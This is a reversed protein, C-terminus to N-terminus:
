IMDKLEMMQIIASVIVDDGLTPYNFIVDYLTNDTKKGAFFQNIQDRQADIHLIKKKAEALSIMQRNSVDNIRWELPAQLRIHLSNPMDRTISVGGRGVIIIHGNEAFGRIIEAVTKKIKLDSPYPKNSLSAVIDSVVGVDEKNVFDRVLNPKMNLEIASEELIEKGIWKWHNQTRRESEKVNLQTALLGALQKAPCGCERSITVVPGTHNKSKALPDLDSRLRKKMYDVLINSM